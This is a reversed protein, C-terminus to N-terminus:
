STDEIELIARKWYELADAKAYPLCDDALSCAKCSSSPIPAPTRQSEILEHFERATKETEERLAADFRVTTRRKDQGYFLAGETISANFIEELCLAQACLQVKDANHAKAKGRKYEVPYISWLGQLKAIKVLKSSGAAEDIRELQSDSRHFEVVDAVGYLGLRQSRLVLGRVTRVNGRVEVKNSHTKEHMVRGSATLYNETWLRELHILACQRPCFVLHQLGSIPLLEEDSYVSM